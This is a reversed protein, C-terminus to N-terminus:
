STKKERKKKKWRFFNHCTEESKRVNFCSQLLSNKELATIWTRLIILCNNKELNLLDNAWKDPFACHWFFFLFFVLALRPHWIKFVKAFVSGIKPIQLFKLECFIARQIKRCNEHSYNTNNILYLPSCFLRSCKWEKVSVRRCFFLYLRATPKM